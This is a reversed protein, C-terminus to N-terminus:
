MCCSTSPYHLPWEQLAISVQCDLITCLKGRFMGRVRSSKPHQLPKVTCCARDPFLRSLKCILRQTLSEAIDGVRSMGWVNVLCYHMHTCALVPLTLFQAIRSRESARCHCEFICNQVAKCNRFAFAQFFIISCSSPGCWCSLSQIPEDPRQSLLFQQLVFLALCFLHQM